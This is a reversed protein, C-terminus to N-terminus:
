GIPTKAALWSRACAGFPRNLIRTRIAKMLRARRKGVEAAFPNGPGGPNGATFRGRADRGSQTGNPSPLKPM